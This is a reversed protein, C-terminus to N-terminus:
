AKDGRAHEHPIPLWLAIGLALTALVSCISLALLYSGTLDFTFGGLWPGLANGILAGTTAVGMLTALRETGFREGLMAPILPAAGGFGIGFLVVSIWIAAPTKVMLLILSVAVLASCAVSDFKTGIKDSIPGMVLRGATNSVGMVSMMAAATLASFGADTAYNVLHNVVVHIATYFFIFMIFISLFVRNQLLEPIARWADLPTTRRLDDIRLCKPKAPPDRFFLAAPLGVAITIAGLVVSAGRWDINPILRDVLPPFVASSLGVGAAAIGLALGRKRSHWKGVTALVCVFPGATGIGMLIGQVAYFQWEVTVAASILFSLGLLTLSPLIIRRPGYRDAWYGMPTVFVAMTIARVFFVSSLTGRDWGFDDAIPKFFVGATYWNAYAIALLLTGLCAIMWPSAVEPFPQRRRPTISSNSNKM